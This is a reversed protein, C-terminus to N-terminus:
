MMGVPDIDILIKASKSKGLTSSFYSKFANNLARHLQHGSPDKSKLDKLIIHWRYEGKLKTMAAAAPGLLLFSSNNKKLLLAIATAHKIVESENKGKCEILAM